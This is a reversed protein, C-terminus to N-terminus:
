LLQIYVVSLVKHFRQKEILAILQQIVIADRAKGLKLQVCKLEQFTKNSSMTKRDQKLRCAAACNLRTKEQTQM